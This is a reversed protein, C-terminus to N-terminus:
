STDSVSTRTSTTIRLSNDDVTNGTTDARALVLGLAHDSAPVSRAPASVVAPVARSVVDNSALVPSAGSATSPSGDARAASTHAGALVLLAVVACVRWGQWLTRKM